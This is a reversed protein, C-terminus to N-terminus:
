TIQLNFSEGRTLQQRENSMVSYNYYILYNANVRYVMTCENFNVIRAKAVHLAKLTVWDNYLRCTEKVIIWIVTWIRM